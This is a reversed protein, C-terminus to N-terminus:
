NLWTEWSLLLVWNRTCFVMFLSHKVKCEEQEWEEQTLAQYTSRCPVQSNERIIKAMLVPGIDWNLSQYGDLRFHDNPYLATEDWFMVLKFFQFECLQSINSTKSSMITQPVEGDLKYISYTANSRIYSELEIWDRKCALSLSSRLKEETGYDRKKNCKSM